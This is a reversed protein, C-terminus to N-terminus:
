NIQIFYVELGSGHNSYNGNESTVKSGDWFDIHNFNYNYILYVKIFSPKEEHFFMNIKEIFKNDLENHVPFHIKLQKRENLTIEHTANQSFAITLVSLFIVTLTYKVM